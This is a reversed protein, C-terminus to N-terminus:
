CSVAHQTYVLPGEYRLTEAPSYLTTWLRKYDPNVVVPVFCKELHEKVVIAEQETLATKGSIEFFGRLWYAFQEHTM